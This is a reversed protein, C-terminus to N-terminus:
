IYDYDFSFFIWQIVFQHNVISTRLANRIVIVHGQM